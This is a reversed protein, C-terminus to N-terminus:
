KAWRAQDLLPALQELTVLDMEFEYPLSVYHASRAVEVMLGGRDRLAFFLFQTMTSLVTFGREPVLQSYLSVGGHCMRNKFHSYRECHLKFITENWFVTM